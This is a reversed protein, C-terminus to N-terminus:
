HAEALSAYEEMIRVFVNPDAHEFFATGIQVSSAGALEMDRVDQGDMIGGVGVVDITSPLLRRFARVQGLAIYKLPNGALGGYGDAADILTKGDNAYGTANPFTNCVVVSQVAYQMNALVAAVEELLFPDSYVSLKVAIAPAGVHDTVDHVRGLTERVLEPVFSTIRKQTGGDWVNPCGLNLELEQAGFGISRCALLAYEKPTFGALSIRLLKGSEHVRNAIDFFYASAADIGPNPLGLANLSACRTREDTWFANGPNGSRPELTYSGLTITRLIDSPVRLLPEVHSPLKAHGAALGLTIM